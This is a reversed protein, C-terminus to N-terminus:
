TRAAAEAEAEELAHRGFRRDARARCLAVYRPNGAGEHEDTMGTRESFEAVNDPCGPHDPRTMKGSKMKVGGCTPAFRCRGAAAEPDHPYQDPSHVVVEGRITEAM